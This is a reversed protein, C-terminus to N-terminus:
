RCIKILLHKKRLLRCFRYFHPAPQLGKSLSRVASDATEKVITSRLLPFGRGCGSPSAAGNLTSFWGNSEIVDSSAYQRAWLLKSRCDLLGSPDQSVESFKYDIYEIYKSPSDSILSILSCPAPPFNREEAGKGRGRQGM